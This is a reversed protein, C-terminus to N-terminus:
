LELWYDTAPGNVHLASMQQILPTCVQIGVRSCLIKANLCCLLACGLLSCPAVPLYLLPSHITFDDITLCLPAIFHLTQRLGSFGTTPLPLNPRDKHGVCSFAVGSVVLFSVPPGGKICLHVTPENRPDTIFVSLVNGEEPEKPCGYRSEEWM